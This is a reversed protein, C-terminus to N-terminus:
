VKTPDNMNFTDFLGSLSGLLPNAIDLYETIHQHADKIMERTIMEDLEKGGLGVDSGGRVNVDAVKEGKFMQGVSDTFKDWEGGVHNVFAVFPNDNAANDNNTSLPQSDAMDESNSSKMRQADKLVESCKHPNMFKYIETAEPAAQFSYSFIKQVAWGHYKDYVEQYATSVADKTSPFREPVNLVNVFLATQYHFQRYVWLLGMAATKDKLLPLNPHVETELEHQLLERLTPSRFESPTSQVPCSEGEDQWQEQMSIEERQHDLWSHVSQEIKALNQV